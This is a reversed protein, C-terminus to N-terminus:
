AVMKVQDLVRCDWALEARKAHAQRPGSESPGGADFAESAIDEILERYAMFVADDASAHHQRDAHDRLAEHTVRCVVINGEDDRMSFHIGDAIIYPEKLRTLPMAPVAKTKLAWIIGALSKSHADAEAPAGVRREWHRQCLGHMLM